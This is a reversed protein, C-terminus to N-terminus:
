PTSPQSGADQKLRQGANELANGAKNAANKFPAQARQSANSIGNDVVAGGSSFSGTQAALYLLMALAAIATLPVDKFLNIIRAAPDGGRPVVKARKAKPAMVLVLGIILMVLAAAGAVIAAAGAPGVVPRVLAYLAFALAVVVIAASTALVAAAALAVGVRGLIFKIVQRPQRAPTRDAPRRGPRDRRGDGPAGQGQRRCLASGEKLAKQAIRATEVIKEQATAIADNFAKQGKDAAENFAKQGKEAASAASSSVEDAANTLTDTTM